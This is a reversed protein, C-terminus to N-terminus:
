LNAKVIKLVEEESGAVHKTPEAYMGDDKNEWVTVIHGNEATEIEIRRTSM